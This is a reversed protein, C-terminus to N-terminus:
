DYEEGNKIEAAAELGECFWKYAERCQMLKYGSDNCEFLKERTDKTMGTGYKNEFLEMADM